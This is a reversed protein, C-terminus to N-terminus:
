SLSAHNAKLADLYDEGARNLDKLVIRANEGIHDWDPSLGQCSARELEHHQERLALRDWLGVGINPEILVVRWDVITAPFCRSGHQLIFRSGQRGRNEDFLPEIEVLVGDQDFLPAILFDLMLYRPFGYSVGMLDANVTRGTEETYAASSRAEYSAM